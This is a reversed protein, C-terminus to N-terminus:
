VIFPFQSRLKRVEVDKRSNRLKATVTVDRVKTGPGKRRYRNHYAVDAERVDRRCRVLFQEDIVQQVFSDHQVYLDVRGEKIGCTGRMMVLTTSLQRNGLASCDSPHNRSYILGDFPELTDLTVVIRDPWCAATVNM